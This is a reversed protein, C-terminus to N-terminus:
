CALVAVWKIALARLWATGFKNNIQAMTTMAFLKDALFTIKIFKASIKGHIFM